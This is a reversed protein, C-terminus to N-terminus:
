DDGEPPVPLSCLEEVTMQKETVTISAGLMFDKPQSLNGAFVSGCFSVTGSRRKGVYFVDSWVRRGPQLDGCDIEIRTRDDNKDIGVEGPDHRFAPKINKMFGANALGSQRRPPDPIECADVVLVDADNPITLEVRVSDAAVEGINKVVLRVPRLLRRAVEFVALDRFYNENPRNLPDFRIASLDIGFPHQQASPSLDPIIDQAPMACYEAEWSIDTGIADDAKVDAFEVLLEAAAQSAGVRMQAIEEPSAPKTPDTSSGRRVYVKERVLKGYDRTTYVPRIQEEIRIVGVQKGEFGFAEYHFRVPQHTLSNVFQQLSHDDLHDRAPIGVVNGRGGRVDEVGIIIYAESRRWANVFGLIDKLLESKEDDTAKAFRYQDKKFDLTPSEEEYLLREFLASDV